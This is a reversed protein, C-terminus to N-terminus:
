CCRDKSVHASFVGDFKRGHVACRRFSDLEPQKLLFPILLKGLPTRAKLGAPVRAQPSNFYYAVMAEEGQPLFPKGSEIALDYVEKGKLIRRFYNELVTGNLVEGFCTQYALFRGYTIAIANVDTLSERYSFRHVYYDHVLNLGLSPPFCPMAVIKDESAGLELHFGDMLFQPNFEQHAFTIKISMQSSCFVEISKGFPLDTVLHHKKVKEFAEDIDKVRVKATEDSDAISNPTLDNEGKHYIHNFEALAKTHNAPLHPLSQVAICYASFYMLRKVTDPDDKLLPPLTVWLEYCRPEQRCFDWMEPTILGSLQPDIKKEIRKKWFAEDLCHLAGSTLAVKAKVYQSTFAPVIYNFFTLLNWIFGFGNQQFKRETKLITRTTEQEAADLTVAGNGLFTAAGKEDVLELERAKSLYSPPPTAESSSPTESAPIPRTLITKQPSKTGPTASAAM